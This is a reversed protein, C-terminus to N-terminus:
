TQELLLFQSATFEFCEPFAFCFLINTQRLSLFYSAAAVAGSKSISTYIRGAVFRLKLQAHDGYYSCLNHFGLLSELMQGIVLPTVKKGRLKEPTPSSPHPFDSLPIFWSRSNQPDCIILTPISM